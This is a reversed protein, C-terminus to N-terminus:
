ATVLALRQLFFTQERILHLVELDVALLIAHQGSPAPVVETDDVVRGVLHALDHPYRLFPPRLLARRHQVGAVVVLVGPALDVDVVPDVSQDVAAGGVQHPEVPVQQAAVVEDRDEFLEVSVQTRQQGGEVDFSQAGHEKLDQEREAEELFTQAKELAIESGAIHQVASDVALRCGEETILDTGFRVLDGVLPVVDGHRVVAVSEGLAEHERGVLAAVVVNRDGPVALEAVDRVFEQVGHHRCIRRTRAGGRFVQALVREAVENIAPPASQVVDVVLQRRAHGQRGHQAAEERVERDPSRFSSVPKTKVFFISNGNIKFQIRM